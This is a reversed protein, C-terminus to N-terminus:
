LQAAQKIQLSIVVVVLVVQAATKALSRVKVAV